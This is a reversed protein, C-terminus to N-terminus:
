RSSHPPNVHRGRPGGDPGSPFGRCAPRLESAGDLEAAIVDGGPLLATRQDHFAVIADENAREM